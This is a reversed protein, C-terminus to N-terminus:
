GGTLATWQDHLWTHVAPITDTDLSLWSLSNTVALVGLVVAALSLFFGLVADFRGAVHRRATASFGGLSFLAGIVGLAIGFDALVGTLVTAAAVVGVLLGLTAFLSARPRPGRPEVAPTTDDDTDPETTVPAVRGTATPEDVTTRGDVPTFRGTATREDVTAREDVPTLRGTADRDDVTGAVRDTVLPERASTDVPAAVDATGDRRGRVLRRETRDDIQEARDAAIADDRSDVVGDANEDKTATADSRGTM